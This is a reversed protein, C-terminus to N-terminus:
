QNMRTYAAQSIEQYRSLGMSEMTDLYNQWDADDSPDMVGTIFLARAEAIYDKLPQKIDSIEENEEATYVIDWVVESPIRGKSHLDTMDYSLMMRHYNFSGDDVIVETTADYNTFTAALTHWHYNNSGAWAANDLVKIHAQEGIENTEGEKAEIWQGGLNGYRMRRFSEQSSMFDLFRFALVPDECSSTIYSNFNFIPAMPTVYGGKGTADELLSMPTYEFIVENNNEVYLTPHAGVVGTIATGDSPTFLATAEASDSSSFSAPAILGDAYLDHFYVLGERYEETTYPVWLNGDEANFFYEDNLLIFANLLWEIADSRFGKNFSFLPVEDKKGNGNPDENMFKELVRRLDEVTKPMDEDVADLWAQNISVLDSPYTMVRGYEVHPYAYFGGSTPDTGLVKTLRQDTEALRGLEENWYYAYQEFYPNLDIFHGDRGYEFVTAIDLNLSLLADPLKEGGSIMLALQTAAESADASFYKFELNIGTQEELWLTYDNTEYNETNVAQKLGIVLTAEEGEAVLPLEGPVIQDKGSDGMSSSESTEAGAKTESQEKGTQETSGCGGFAGLALLLSLILATIQKLNAKGHKRM